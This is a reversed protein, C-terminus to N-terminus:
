HDSGQPKAQAARKRAFSEYFEGLPDDAPDFDPPLLAPPRQIEELPVPDLAFIVQAFTRAVPVLQDQDVKDLTDEENLLYIPGSIYNMTPVGVAFLASGDGPFLPGTVPNAAPLIMARDLHNDVIADQLVSALRPEETSTFVVRLQRRGTPVLRGEEGKCEIGIHEIQINLATKPLLDNLHERAFHTSGKEAFHAACAVFVLTKNLRHPGFESFAEALGLVVAMGSADEVASRFPGDHHSSVMIVEDTKGPLVGVVNHTVSPSTSGTIHITARDGAEASARVTDCLSPRIWLGPFPWYHGDYPAYYRDTDYPMQSLLGILGAAGRAECAQAVLQFNLRAWHQPGTDVETFEGLDSSFLAVSELAQAPFGAFMQDFVVCKGTIDTEDLTEGRGVYVMEAAVGEESTFKSTAVYFCPIENSVGDRTITLSAGEAAWYPIAFPELRYSLGFAEYRGRIYREAEADAPSGPRRM